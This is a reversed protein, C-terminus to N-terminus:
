RILYGSDEPMEITEEEQVEMPQFNEEAEETEAPEEQKKSCGNISVAFMTGIILYILYKKM